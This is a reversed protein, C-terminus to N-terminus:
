VVELGSRGSLGAYSQHDIGISVGDVVQIQDSVTNLNCAARTDNFILDEVGFSGLLQKPPKLFVLRGAILNQAKANHISDSFRGAV